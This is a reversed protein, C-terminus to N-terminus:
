VYYEVETRIVYKCGKLVPSGEHLPATCTGHPFVLVCGRSPMVPFANLVGEQEKAPIFFTTNGGEFNDNLYILFTLRSLQARTSSQKSEGDYASKNVDSADDSQVFQMGNKNTTDNIDYRYDGNVDFGSCPWAGDIHPRYYRGPVYRYFRFRRNVGLPHFIDLDSEEKCPEKYTPLFEKVRNFITREMHHDIIWVCAHALISAGPQGGLPEDPHYGALEAAAILRDCELPSFVNEILFANNVYPIATKKVPNSKAHDEHLVNFSSITGPEKKDDILEHENIPSTTLLDLDYKNPPKRNPGDEHGCIRFCDERSITNTDLFRYIGDTDCAINAVVEDFLDCCTRGKENSAKTDEVADGCAFAPFLRIRGRKSDCTVKHDGSMNVGLNAWSARKLDSESVSVLCEPAVVRLISDLVELALPDGTGAADIERVWRQLAGLKPRYYINPTTENGLTQHILRQLEQMRGINRLTVIANDWAGHEIQKTIENTVKSFSMSNFNDASSSHGFAGIGHQGTPKSGTVLGLLKQLDYIVRRLNRYRKDKVVPKQGINDPSKCLRQLTNITINLAQDSIGHTNNSADDEKDSLSDSRETLQHKKLIKSALISPSTDNNVRQRKRARKGM